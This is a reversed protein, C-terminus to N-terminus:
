IRGVKEVALELEYDHLGPYMSVLKAVPIREVLEASPINYYWQYYAYFEGIWAPLFGKMACGSVFPICDTKEYYELLTPADMTNVYAMGQDIFRRTKSGMYSSIFEETDVEPYNMAVMDFLKGQAEVVDNLYLENYARM